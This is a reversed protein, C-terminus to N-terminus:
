IIVIANGIKYVMHGLVLTVMRRTLLVFVYASFVTKLEANMLMNM